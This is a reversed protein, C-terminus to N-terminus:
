AATNNENNPDKNNKKAKREEVENIAAGSLAYLFLAVAATAAAFKMTYEFNRDKKRETLSNYDFYYLRFKGTGDYQLFATQYRINFVTIKKTKTVVKDTLPDYEDYTVHWVPYLIKVSYADDLMNGEVSYALYGKLDDEDFDKRNIRYSYEAYQDSVTPMVNAPAYDDPLYSESLMAELSDISDASKLGNGAFAVDSLPIQQMTFAFIAVAIVAVAFITIRAKAKNRVATRNASPYFAPRMLKSVPNFALAALIYFVALFLGWVIYNVYQKFNFCYPIFFLLVSVIVNVACKRRVYIGRRVKLTRPEDLVAFNVRYSILSYIFLSIGSIPVVIFFGAAVYDALSITVAAAFVSFLVAFLAAATAIKHTNDYRALMNDFIASAEKESRIANIRAKEADEENEPADSKAPARKARLIEDCTVGYLEAIAPIVSIDPSYADREWCSVTKNSVGLKEAVDQQTYGNSRRLASLFQGITQKEM